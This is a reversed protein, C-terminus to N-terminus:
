KECLNEIEVPPERYYYLNIFFKPQLKLKFLNKKHMQNIRDVKKVSDDNTLNGEPVIGKRIYDDLEAYSFGIKKEDEESHPLGDNPAKHVWEYPLGLYDGIALVETVTLQGIPECDSAQDGWRTMYGIYNESLNCTGIVRGNYTQAIAYLMTMRVRPPINQESQKSWKFDEDGIKNWISGFGSTIGDIPVCMYQIGLYEAIKDADNISQGKDPLAVGIVNEAGIAKACLASVILSDKGGSLGLVAKCGKGNKEFWDRIWQILSETVEKVDFKYAQELYNM